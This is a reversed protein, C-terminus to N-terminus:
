AIFVFEKLSLFICHLELMENYAWNHLQSRRRWLSCRSCAVKYKFQEAHCKESIRLLKKLVIYIL